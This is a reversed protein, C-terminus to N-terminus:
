WSNSSVRRLSDGRWLRKNFWQKFGGTWQSDGEAQCKWLIRTQCKSGVSPTETFLWKIYCSIPIIRGDHAFSGKNVMQIIEKFSNKQCNNWSEFLGFLMISNWQYSYPFSGTSLSHEKQLQPAFTQNVRCIQHPAKGLHCQCRRIITLQQSLLTYIVVIKGRSNRHNWTHTM